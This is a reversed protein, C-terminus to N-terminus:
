QPKIGLEEVVGSYKTFEDQYYQTFEEPGMYKPNLGAKQADAIWEPDNFTKEFVDALKDIIEQPTGPPVTFGRWMYQAVDFGSEKVTPIDKVVDIREDSSVALPVVSGVDLQALAEAVFPTSTDCNEGAVATLAPAGGQFPMRKFEAGSAKELFIRFFDHGNWAGGMGMTIQGPKSKALDIFEQLNQVGLNKRAVLIHPDAACLAVPVFDKETYPIGKMTFQDIYTFTHIIGITYGDPKAKAIQTHGVVGGGGTVNTVVIRQGLYKELYKAAVRAAIDQGGGAAYPVIIEVPKEPYSIETEAQKPSEEKTSGNPSQEDQKQCGVLFIGFVMIAILFISIRKKM